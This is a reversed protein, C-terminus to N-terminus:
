AARARRWRPRGTRLATFTESTMRGVGVNGSATSDYGYTDYAGTPGNSTNRWIPRDLGDYGMFVTGASGRADVVLVLNGDGDYTNAHLRREV